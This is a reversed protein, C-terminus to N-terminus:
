EEVTMEDILHKAGAFKDIIFLCYRIDISINRCQDPDYHIDSMTGEWCRDFNIGILQGDANLIPSGSNGGTTHNTAVFAVPMEGNKSAYRGYDKANYLAKLKSDVVYDYIGTNEKQMIGEITTYYKYAVGDIPEYGKVKGYAVRLTLNADPYFTKETQMEMLAKTWLRDLQKIQKDLEQLKPLVESM